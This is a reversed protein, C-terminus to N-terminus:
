YLPPLNTAQLSRMNTVIFIRDNQKPTVRGPYPFPKLVM